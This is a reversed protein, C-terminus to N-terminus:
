PATPWCSAARGGSVTQTSTALQGATAAALQAGGQRRAVISTHLQQSCKRTSNKSEIQAQQQEPTETTAAHAAPPCGSGHHGHSNRKQFMGDMGCHSRTHIIICTIGFSGDQNM